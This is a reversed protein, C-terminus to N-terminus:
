CVKNSQIQLLNLCAWRYKEIGIAFTCGFSQVASFVIKGHGSGIDIFVTDKGSAINFVEAFSEETIEGYTRAM